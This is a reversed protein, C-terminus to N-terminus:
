LYPRPRGTHYWRLLAGVGPTRDSSAQHWCGGYPPEKGPDRPLKLGWVLDWAKQPLPKQLGGPAIEPASVSFGNKPASSTSESQHTGQHYERLVRGRIRLLIGSRDKTGRRQSTYRNTFTQYKNTTTSPEMVVPSHILADFEPPALELSSGLAINKNSSFDKM